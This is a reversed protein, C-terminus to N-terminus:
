NQPCIIKEVNCIHKIVKCTVKQVKVVAAATKTKAPGKCAALALALFVVTLLKRM